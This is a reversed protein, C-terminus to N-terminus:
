SGGRLETVRRIESRPLWLWHGDVSLVMGAELMRVPVGRLVKQQPLEIEVNHKLADRDSRAFACVAVLVPVVVVTSAFLRRITTRQGSYLRMALVPAYGM